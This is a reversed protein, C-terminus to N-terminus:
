PTVIALTPEQGLHRLNELHTIYDNATPAPKQVVEVGSSAARGMQNLTDLYSIYLNADMVTGQDRGTARGLEGLRALQSSFDFTAARERNLRNAAQGLARLQDLQTIFDDASQNEGDEGGQAFAPGGALVSGLALIVVFLLWKISKQTLM